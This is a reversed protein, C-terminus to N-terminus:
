DPITQTSPTWCDAVQVVVTDTPVKNVLHVELAGIAPLRRVVRGVVCVEDGVQPNDAHLLIKM